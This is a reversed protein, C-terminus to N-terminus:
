PTFSFLDLMREQILNRIPQGRDKIEIAKITLSIISLLEWSFRSKEFIFM